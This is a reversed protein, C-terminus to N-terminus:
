SLLELSAGTIGAYVAAKLSDRRLEALTMEPYFRGLALRASLYGLVAGTLGAFAAWGIREPQIASLVEFDM